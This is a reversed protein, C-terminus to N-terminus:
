LYAPTAAHTSHHPYRIHNRQEYELAELHKTLITVAKQLDATTAFVATASKPDHQLLHRLLQRAQRLITVDKDVGAQPLQTKLVNQREASAPGVDLLNNSVAPYKEALLQKLALYTQTDPRKQAFSNPRFQAAAGASMALIIAETQNM